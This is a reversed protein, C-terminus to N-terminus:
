YQATITEPADRLTDIKRWASPLVGPYDSDPTNRWYKPALVEKEARPNLWAGWWSFTSNAIIHKRCAAMLRLDEWATAADNHSVFHRRGAAPLHARAFDIDDSFIFFEANENEELIIQWALEYYRMPLAYNHHALAFDGRRLHVSVPCRSAAIAALTAANKGSAETRFRFERRLEEAAAEAYGAVEFYSRLYLRQPLKEFPLEPAFHYVGPGSWCRSGLAALVRDAVPRLRRNVTCAFNEWATAPSAPAEICFAGL